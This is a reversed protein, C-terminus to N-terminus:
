NQALYAIAATLVTADDKAYGLMSNCFGCLLGRVTGASHCHDVYLRNGRIPTPAQKCIACVGDQKELLEDYEDRTIGYTSLYHSGPKHNKKATASKCPKCRSDLGSSLAKNVSFNDVPLMLKCGACLKTGDIIESKPRM